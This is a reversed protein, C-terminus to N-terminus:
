RKRGRAEALNKATRAKIRATLFEALTKREEKTAKVFPTRAQNVYAYQPANKFGVTAKTKTASLVARSALMRGTRVLTRNSHGVEKAYAPSLRKMKGRTGGGAAIRKAQLELMMEAAARMDEKTVLRRLLGLDLVRVTIGAM